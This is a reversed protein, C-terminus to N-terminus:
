PTLGGVHASLWAWLDARVQAQEAENLIEHRLGPYLRLTVDKMGADLFSQYAKRVGVGLDGVPDMEGSIFLVPANRDMKELNARKCLCGIGGLMDCFLGVTAHEGCLPDAIYRDVNGSDASLWDFATRAPAFPKNYAGFALREVTPSFRDFGHVTGIAKAALRGLAVVAPAQQGTGMLIAADVTGPHRILYSRSLFSGMSHGMLVYPLDPYQARMRCRLAYMDDVVHWWGDKQAFWLRAAGEAVSLGHGLHDNAVVVLGKDCLFQALPAYRLAYESVGHAIQYVGVPAGDPTWVVAHVNTKGDTSPFYFEKRNVM